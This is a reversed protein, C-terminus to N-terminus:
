ERDGFLMWAVVAGLGIDILTLMLYGGYKATARRRHNRRQGRNGCGVSPRGDTRWRLGPHSRRRSRARHRFDDQNSSEHQAREPDTSLGFDAVSRTVPRSRGIGRGGISTRNSDPPLVVTARAGDTRYRVGISRWDIVPRGHAQPTAREGSPAPVRGADRLGGARPLVTAENTVIVHLMATEASMARERCSEAPSAACVLSGEFSTAGSEDASRRDRPSRLRTASRPRSPRERRMPFSGSVRHTTRKPAICRRPVASPTAIRRTGRHLGIRDRPVRSDHGTQIEAGKDYRHGRRSASQWPRRRSRRAVVSETLVLAAVDNEQERRHCRAGADDGDAEDDARDAVQWEPNAGPVEREVM